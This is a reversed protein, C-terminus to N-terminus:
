KKPSAASTNRKHQEIVNVALLVFKYHMEPSTDPSQLWKMLDSMVARLAALPATDAFLPADQSAPQGRKPNLNV